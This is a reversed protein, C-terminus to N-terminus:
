SKYANVGQEVQGRFLLKCWYINIGCVAAGNTERGAAADGAVGCDPPLVGSTVRRLPRAVKRIGSTQWVKVSDNTNNNM